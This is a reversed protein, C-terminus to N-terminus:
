GDVVLRGATRWPGDLRSTRAPFGASRASAANSGADRGCALVMVDLGARRLRRLEALYPAPDRATLVMVTTGTKATRRVRALLRDFPASPTSSLRALLDLVREAQGASDSMPVDAFRSQIRTYGAATIGFVAHEAALSRALSAAVVLLTELDDGSWTLDWGGRSGTDIDLAILVQREQSPEFRKTVPRGLRASARQHIRRLPDGPQYPRVGAFRSPDESLGTRARQRDGWREPRAVPPAAVTRPRVLYRDVEPQSVSAAPRAFLDGVTLSVPGIEYVGRRNAVLTLRRVVREYPALTWVNRLVDGAEEAEVLEHGELAVGRSTADDARLWALPLRKRNWVEITMPIDDGWSTRHTALRRVYTLGDLGQAAWLTHVFEIMLVVFGLIVVIPIQLISGVVILGIALLAGPTM